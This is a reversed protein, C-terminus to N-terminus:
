REMEGIEEMEGGDGGRGLYVAGVGGACGASGGPSFEMNRHPSARLDEYKDVEDDDAKEHIGEAREDRQQELIAGGICNGGGLNHRRIALMCFGVVLLDYRAYYVLCVDVFGDGEFPLVGLFGTEIEMGVVFVLDTAREDEGGMGANDCRVEVLYLLIASGFGECSQVSASQRSNMAFSYGHNRSVKSAYGKGM